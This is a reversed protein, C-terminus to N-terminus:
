NAINNLAKADNDNRKINIAYEWLKRAEAKDGNNYKVMGLNIHAQVDEPDLAITKKFLM